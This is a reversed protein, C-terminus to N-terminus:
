PHAGRPCPSAVHTGRAQQYQVPLTVRLVFAGQTVTAGADSRVEIRQIEDRVSTGLTITQTEQAAASGYAADGLRMEVQQVESVAGAENTDADFELRLVDGDSLGPRVNDLGAAAAASDRATASVLKPAPHQGWSGTVLCSASADATSLLSGAPLAQLGDKLLLVSLSSGASAPALALSLRGVRTAADEGRGTTNTLTLVYSTRSEVFGPGTQSSTAAVTVPLTTATYPASSAPNVVFESTGVRIRDGRSVVARLDGATTVATSGAVTTLQGTVADLAQWAWEGRYSAGLPSSASILADIQSESATSPSATAASMSVTITDGDGLGPQGGTDAAVCSQLGTTPVVTSGWSGTVTVAAAARVAESADGAAASSLDSSRLTSGAAVSIALRGTAAHYASAAPDVASLTVVLSNDATWSGAMATALPTSFVFLADLEAKSAASPRNTSQDFIVTLTDGNGLGAQSGGDAATINAITPATHNGWSGSLQVASGGPHVAPSSLDASRLGSGAVLAATLAGVRTLGEAAMGSVDTVTVTLLSASTWQGTYGSGFSHSFSVLSDIQTASAAAPQNTTQDFNIAITDGVDLGSATGTAAAVVSTVAPAALAGWTGILTVTSTVAVSSSDASKLMVGRDSAFTATLQGVRTSAPSAAGTVDTVTIALTSADTWSGTYATGLAASFSLLKDVDAKTGVAPSNTDKNFSFTIRDGNSLGGQAGDNTAVMHTVSPASHAGWTGSVAMSGSAADSSEDASRINGTAKVTAQLQGVATAAVGSGGSPDVIKIIATVLSGHPAQGWSGTYSAGLVANFSFLADVDAKTALTPTNTAKNFSIAIEDNAGIGQQGGADSAVVSVLAPADHKGWSGSVTATATSAPSSGDESRLNAAAKVTLGLTGVRTSAYPATGTDDSITIRLTQRSRRYATAGTIGAAGGSAYFKSGLPVSTADFTGTSAVTFDTGEIYIVDGRQLASRLDQTTTMTATNDVISVTGPLENYVWAGSYSQGLVASFDFLADIDSQHTLTPANTPVDFSVTIYDGVSLGANGDAVTSSRVLVSGDDGGGAAASLGTQGAVGAEAVASVISPAATAGASSPGWCALLFLLLSLLRPSLRRTFGGSASLLSSPPLPLDLQVVIMPANAAEGSDVVTM